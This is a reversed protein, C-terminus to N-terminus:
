HTNKLPTYGQRYQQPQAYTYQVRQHPHYQHPQPVYTTPTMGRICQGNQVSIVSVTPPGSQVIVDDDDRAGGGLCGGFLSGILGVPIIIM